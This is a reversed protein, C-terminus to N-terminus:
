EGVCTPIEGFWTGLGDCSRKTADPPDLQYGDKCSYTATSGAFTTKYTVNGNEIGEPQDCDM